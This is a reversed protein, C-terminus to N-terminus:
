ANIKEIFQELQEATMLGFTTLSSLPMEMASNHRANADGEGLHNQSSSNQLRKGLLESLFAKGHPHKMVNRLMSDTTYHIPIDITGEVTLSTTLRIDRSSAGISITFAGTEVFWDNIRPEYYAFSRKNLTFTVTKTEGPMLSIKTFGKLENIPRGVTSEVDHVYLQVAEKGACSGTNKIDCSILITETDKMETKDLKLNSYEYNTYSLGHGFPFLVNMKKKDYYRYGVYIGERYEVIGDEGPFFLFSPNDELRLPYTEALKGCPNADGFLLDVAAKGVGEGGLYMNLIAPVKDVWPMEVPAGGHLVVITNPQVAAVAEILKNQDEPMALSKRDTGESEYTDPLGVFLIAIDVTKALTVADQETPSDPTVINLSKAAEIASVIKPTNVRSSGSGQYRPNKAFEGIFAVKANKSLPLLNGENKLLVACETELLASATRHEDWNIKADAIQNSQSDLVFKLVNKVAKDLVAEDLSGEKVAAVIRADQTGLGGPMELDLGALLGKVRNKVAGWDTVVFGDYGWKDRLVDTLLWKNESSFVGNIRNYSCMVSRVNAEKVAAEFAPLYIEHLTREDVESSGTSRCTEQNNAAFHKVCAAVGKSQIGNIYAVALQSSLYPDESFYEFNRGCLPSRKIDIGPGLLMAVSESQCEDGLLQGLKELLERDFSAALASASPFCVAEISENIGLHDGEGIQKRLGHPGDCMMVGPINLREITKTSWFDRGSCLGAKEELTLENIIKEIM